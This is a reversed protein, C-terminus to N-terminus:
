PLTAWYAGRFDLLQRAQWDTPLDNVTGAVLLTVIPTGRAAAEALEKRVEDSRASEPSALLVVRTAIGIARVLEERWRQHTPIDATDLWSAVGARELDRNLRVAFSENRRSYSIFVSSM